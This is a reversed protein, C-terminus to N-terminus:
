SNDLDRILNQIKDDKLKLDLKIKEDKDNM